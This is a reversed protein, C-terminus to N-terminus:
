SADPLVIDSSGPRVLRPYERSTDICGGDVYVGAPERLRLMEALIRQCAQEDQLSEQILAEVRSEDMRLEGAADRWTANRWHYIELSKGELTYPRDRKWFNTFLGGGLYMVWSGEYGIVDSSADDPNRFWTRDGPVFYRLPLPAEMSGYERLFVEHFEGSQVAETEWQKQLRTYLAPHTAQAEEAIGLLIVYETARYCSFSYLEGSAELQTAKRLSEILSHGPLITFGLGKNYTWCDRPREAETTHFSLATKRAAAVIYCRMSVSSVWDDLSPFDFTVPGCLMALLIERVLDARNAAGDLGLMACVGVTDYGPTWREALQPLLRCHIFKADHAGTIEVSVCIDLAHKALWALVDARLAPSTLAIRVGGAPLMAANVATDSFGDLVADQM